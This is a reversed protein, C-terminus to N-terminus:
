EHEEEEPTKALAMGLLAYAKLGSTTQQNALALAAKENGAKTMMRTLRELAYGKDTQKKIQPLMQVARELDGAEAFALLILDFRKHEESTIDELTESAGEPDGARAQEEAIQQLVDFRIQDLVETRTRERFASDGELAAVPV